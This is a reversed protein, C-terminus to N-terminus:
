IAKDNAYWHMMFLILGRGWTSNYIYIQKEDPEFVSATTVLKVKFKKKDKRTKDEWEEIWKQKIRM